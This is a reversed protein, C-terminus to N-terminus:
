DRFVWYRNVLFNILFSGIVAIGFYVMGLLYGSPHLGELAAITGIRAAFAVCVVLLNQTLRKSSVGRGERRFTWYEHVFYLLVAMCIFSVAASTTLSLPTFGRLAFTLGFDLALAVGSAATYRMASHELASSISKLM